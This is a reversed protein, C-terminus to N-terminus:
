PLVSHPSQNHWNYSALTVFGHMANINCNKHHLQVYSKIFFATHPCANYQERDTSNSIVADDSHMCKYLIKFIVLPVWYVVFFFFLICILLTAKLVHLLAGVYFFFASSCFAVFSFCCLCCHKPPVLHWFIFVQYVIVSGIDFINFADM